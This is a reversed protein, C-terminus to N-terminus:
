ALNSGDKQTATYIGSGNREEALVDLAKMGLWLDVLGQLDKMTRGTLREVTRLRYALTHHHVGLEAAASKMRRDHRFLARLSEVLESGHADDYRLVPGLIDDVVGELEHRDLPLWEGAADAPAFRALREGRAVARELSWRAQRWPVVLGAGPLFPSSVGIAVDFDVREIAEIAEASDPVVALLDGRTIMLSPLLQDRLRHYIEADDFRTDRSRIVVLVVSKMPEFGRETLKRATEAQSREGGLLDSLVEAGERRETERQQYLDRLPIGIVTALYQAAALGTPSDHERRCATLRAATRGAVAVPLIYGGSFAGPFAPLEKGEEEIQAAIDPPPIPVGPLVPTEVPSSVYLDFGSVKSLRRIFEDVPVASAQYDQLTEFISIHRVLRQSGGQENAAAVLRSIDVFSVELPLRLMPLPLRDAEDLMEQTIPPPSGGDALAVGAIGRDYLRRLYAMQEDAGEPIGGGGTLILEGGELYPVPDVLEAVHAWKVTRDLGGEGAMVAFGLRPFDFLERVTIGRM